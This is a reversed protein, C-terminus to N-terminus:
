ASLTKPKTEPAPVPTSTEQTPSVQPTSLAVPQATLEKVWLHARQWIAWQIYPIPRFQAYGTSTSDDPRLSFHGINDLAYPAIERGPTVSAVYWKNHMRLLVYPYLTRNTKLDKLYVRLSCHYKICKLLMIAPEQTEAFDYKTAGFVCNEFSPPLFRRAIQGTLAAFGEGIQQSIDAAMIFLAAQEASLNVAQLSFGPALQYISQRPSLVPFQAQILLGMDRQITRKSVGFRAALDPISVPANELLTLIQAIRKTKSTIEKSM